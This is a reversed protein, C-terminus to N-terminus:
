PCIRRRPFFQQGAALFMPGELTLGKTIAEAVSLQRAGLDKRPSLPIPSPPPERIPALPFLHLWKLGICEVRVAVHAESTGM